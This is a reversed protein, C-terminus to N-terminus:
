EEPFGGDEDRMQERWTVNAGNESRDCDEVHFLRQDATLFGCDLCVLLNTDVNRDEDLTYMTTVPGHSGIHNVPGVSYHRDLEIETEIM